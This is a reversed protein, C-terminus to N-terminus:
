PSLRRKLKLFFKKAPNKTEKALTTAMWYTTEQGLKKMQSVFDSFPLEQPKFGQKEWVKLYLILESFAQLLALVLGHFEDKYGKEAFFRRFFEEAPKSILDQPKFKYGSEIASQAALTTYHELKELYQSITQYNQHLLHSKLRGVKGKVEAQEHVKGIYKGKDTRFLHLQYDPHWGSHKIWKDFIINKRPFKFGAFEKKKIASKIERKLKEPVEEDADIFLVWPTKVKKLAYNRQSQFDKLKKQYVKAGLNEAIEVTKDSSYDDIVLIQDVWSLAALCQPLRAEENKTLVVATIENKNM